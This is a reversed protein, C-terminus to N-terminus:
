HPEPEDLSEIAMIVGAPTTLPDENLGSSTAGQRITRAATDIVIAGSEINLPAADRREISRAPFARSLEALLAAAKEAPAIVVVRAATGTVKGHSGGRTVIGGGAPRTPAIEPSQLMLVMVAAAAGLGGAWAIRPRTFFGALRRIWNERVGAPAPAPAAGGYADQWQDRLDAPLPPMEEEGAPSGAAESLVSLAHRADTRARVTLTDATEERTMSDYAKM